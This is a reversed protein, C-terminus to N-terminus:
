DISDGIEQEYIELRSTKTVRGSETLMDYILRGSGSSPWCPIIEFDEANLEGKSGGDNYRRMDETCVQSMGLPLMHGQRLFMPVETLGVEIFHHGKKMMETKYESSSTFNIYLMDEPLYVYRGIANQKYVPAIMLGEGLLLQDEVNLATDDDEFDFGLPRFYMEDYEVAKLYESYLYPILRYRLSIIQKFADVNEFRYCEQYRTGLCSHNRFLPTFLSVATWRLLLDETVDSGFGGADAGSYLFGCMNLGPLMQINLLLHSWWSCNDGTWIGGYRHAGIYSSRSFVLGRREGLLKELGESTARTMNYGYLNHVKDHRIKKGDVMHYFNCYQDHSRWDHITGELHYFDDPTPEHDKSMMNNLTVISEGFSWGTYFLAPENMDNWFGEIGVDTFMGYQEGFWERVEPRLFDPLNSWGPWVGASFLSSDENTCFFGKAKADDYVEFGEENKIGADMIPILRVGQERMEEVFAPFHPFRKKDVTFDKYDEMYHIDLYIMDLPIGERRYGNVVERVENEDMYSYRSQGYGFGWVPAIYSKGIMKRFQSTISKLDCGTIFYIYLNKDPVTVVIQSRDTFGMDFEMRAPYDFFLGFEEERDRVVFFNHSGYLSLKDETHLPEDTNDSVYRFGRKNMGRLSEGLGFIVAEDSMTYTVTVAPKGEQESPKDLYLNAGHSGLLEIFDPENRLEVEDFDVVAETEFPNGLKLQYIM